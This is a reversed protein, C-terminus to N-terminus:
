YKLNVPPCELRSFQPRLKPSGTSISRLNFSSLARGESCESGNGKFIVSLIMAANINQSKLGFPNHKNSPPSSHSSSNGENDASSSLFTM